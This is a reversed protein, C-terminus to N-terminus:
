LLLAAALEEQRAQRALEGYREADKEAQEQKRELELIEFGLASSAGSIASDCNPDAEKAQGLEQVRSSISGVERIGDELKEACSCIRENCGSVNDTFGREFAKQIEGLERRSKRYRRAEEKKDDCLRQYNSSSMM